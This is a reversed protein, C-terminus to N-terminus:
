MVVVESQTTRLAARKMKWEQFDTRETAMREVRRVVAGRGGEPGEEQSGDLVTGPVEEPAALRVAELHCAQDEALRPDHMLEGELVLQWEAGSPWADGPHDIM